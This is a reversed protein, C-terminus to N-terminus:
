ITRCTQQASRSIRLWHGTMTAAMAFAGNDAFGPLLAGKMIISQLPM